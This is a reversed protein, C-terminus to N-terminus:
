ATFHVLLNFAIDPEWEVFARWFDTGLRQGRGAPAGRPGARRAGSDVDWETRFDALQKDSLGKIDDPPVLDEHM